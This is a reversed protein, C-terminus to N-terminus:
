RGIISQWHENAVSIHQSADRLWRDRLASDENLYLKGEIVSFVEPSSAAVNGDAMAYACYGGYQPAYAKPNMEFAQMTDPGVFYWMAGRWKIAHEPSGKRARKETFYIVVDYGSIAVGQTAYVRPMDAAAPLAGLAMLPFALLIRIVANLRAIAPM